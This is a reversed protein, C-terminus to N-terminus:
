QVIIKECQRTNASKLEVIYLGPNLSGTYVDAEGRLEKSLIKVGSLSYINLTYEENGELHTRISCSGADYFILNPPPAYTEAVGDTKCWGYLKVGDVSYCYLEVSTENENIGTFYLPGYISAIDEIWTMQPQYVAYPSVM